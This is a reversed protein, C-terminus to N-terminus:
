HEDKVAKEDFAELYEKLTDHLKQWKEGGDNADSKVCACALLLDCVDIRRLKITM